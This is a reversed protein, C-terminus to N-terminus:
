PPKAPAHSGAAGASPLFEKVKTALEQVTFPKPFFGAIDEGAFRAEVDLNGFGSCIVVPVDPRIERIRRLTEPGDMVPMAVDLLVLSIDGPNREFLRIAERGDAAQLVTYGYPELTAAALDRVVDSPM